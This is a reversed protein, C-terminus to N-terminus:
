PLCSWYPFPASMVEIYGSAFAGSQLEDYLRYQLLGVLRIKLYVGILNPPNPDGSHFTTHTIWFACTHFYIPPFVLLLVKADGGGSM